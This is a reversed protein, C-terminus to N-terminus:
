HPFREGVFSVWFNNRKNNQHDSFRKKVSFAVFGLKRILFCSVKYLVLQHLWFKINYEKLISYNKSNLSKYAM